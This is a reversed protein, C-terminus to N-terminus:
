GSACYVALVCVRVEAAGCLHLTHTARWTAMVTAPMGPQPPYGGDSTITGRVWKAVGSLLGADLPGGPCALLAQLADHQARVTPPFLASETFVASVKAEAPAQEADQQKAPAHYFGMITARCESPCSGLACLVRTWGAKASLGSADGLQKRATQVADPGAGGQMACHAHYYCVSPLLLVTCDSCWVIFM